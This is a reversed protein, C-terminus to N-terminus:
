LLSLANGSSMLEPGFLFKTGLTIGNRLRLAEISRAQTSRENARVALVVAASQGRFDSTLNYVSAPSRPIMRDGAEVSEATKENHTFQAICRGHGRIKADNSSDSEASREGLSL